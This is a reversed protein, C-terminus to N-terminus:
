NEKNPMKFINNRFDDFIMRRKPLGKTGSNIKISLKDFGNKEFYSNLGKIDWFIGASLWPYNFAVFETGIYMIKENGIINQVDSYNYDHTVHIAGGGRYRFPYTRNQDYWGAMDTRSTSKLPKDTEGSRECMAKGYDCEHTIQAIFACIRDFTTIEYLELVSNLNIIDQEAIDRINAELEPDPDYYIEENEGKKVLHFCDECDSIEDTGKIKYYNEIGAWGLQELDEKTVYITPKREGWGRKEWEDDLWKSELPLLDEDQSEEKMPVEKVTILGGYRCTLYASFRLADVYKEETADFIYLHGEQQIWAKTIMPICLNGITPPNGKCRDFSSINRFVNCDECTMLPKQNAAIIGHDECLGLRTYCTGLSCSIIAERTVYEGENIVIGMNSQGSFAYQEEM